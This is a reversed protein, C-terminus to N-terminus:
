PILVQIDMVNTGTLGTLLEDNIQHFFANSNNELLYTQYRLHQKKARYHTFGDVIAGAADGVGDIGDTGMSAAVLGTNDIGPLMGLVLEQNRGGKGQGTVTVTTEGGAIICPPKQQTKVAQAFEVLVSGIKRAEGQLTTSFIMPDYGLAQATKTAQECAQKNSAIIQNYVRQFVSNQPKPTEPIEGNRGQTIVQQVHQSITNWVNYQKLIKEADEFTTTDPTTPGSAIFELPDNIIDSLILSVVTASTHTALQGGKVYSLHKRVTNLDNITAGAKMLLDTTQQMDGLSVRPQCLLASGGGSILVLVLDNSTCEQIGRLLQKTGHISGPNPLPHGGVFVSLEKHTTQVQANNTIVMAKKPKMHELAAEAMGVSAKGFGILVCNDFKTVDIIDSSLQIIDESFVHHVATYPNVAQVAEELITLIDRRKKQLEPTLGNAVIQEFNRFLRSM